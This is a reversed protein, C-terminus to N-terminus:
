QEIEKQCSCYQTLPSLGRGCVPCIWGFVAKEIEMDMNNACLICIGNTNASGLERGCRRCTM